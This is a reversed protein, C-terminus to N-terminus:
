GKPIASTAPPVWNLIVRFGSESEDGLFANVLFSRGDPSPAYIGRTGTISLLPKVIRFLAVPDGVTFPQLSKV